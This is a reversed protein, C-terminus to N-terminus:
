AEYVGVFNQVKVLEAVVLLAIFKPARDQTNRFSLHEWGLSKTVLIGVYEAGNKTCKIEGTRNDPAFRFAQM